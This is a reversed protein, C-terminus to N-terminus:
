IKAQNISNYNARMSLLVVREIDAVTLYKENQVIHLAEKYTLDRGIIFQECTQVYCAPNTESFFFNSHIPQNIWSLSVFFLNQLWELVKYCIHIFSHSEKLLNCLRRSGSQQLFRCFFDFGLFQNPSYPVNSPESHCWILVLPNLSTM